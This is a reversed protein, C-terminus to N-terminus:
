CTPAQPGLFRMPMPRTPQPPLRGRCPTQRPTPRTRCSSHSATLFIHLTPTNAARSPLRPTSSHFPCIPVSDAVESISLTRRTCSALRRLLDPLSSVPRDPTTDSPNCSLCASRQCCQRPTVQHGPRPHAVLNTTCSHAPTFLLSYRTTPASPSACEFPRLSSRQACTQCSHQLPPTTRASIKYISRGHNSLTGAARCCV